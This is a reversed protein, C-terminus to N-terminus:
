ENNQSNDKTIRALDAETLLDDNIFYYAYQDDGVRCVVFKGSEDKYILAEDGQLEDIIPNGAQELKKQLQIISRNREFPDFHSFGEAEDQSLLKIRRVRQEQKKAEEEASIKSKGSESEPPQDRSVLPYRPRPEKGEPKKIKIYGLEINGKCSSAEISVAIKQEALKDLEAQFFHTLAINEASTINSLDDEPLIYWNGDQGKVMPGLRAEGGSALVRLIESLMKTLDKQNRLYNLGSRCMLLVDISEDLVPLNEAKGEAHISKKFGRRARGLQAFRDPEISMVDVGWQELAEEEFVSTGAGVDLVARGELDERTIGLIVQYGQIGSSDEFTHKGRFLTEFTPFAM